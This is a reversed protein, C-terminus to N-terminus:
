SRPSVRSHRSVSRARSRPCKSLGSPLRSGDQYRGKLVEVLQEVLEPVLCQQISNGEGTSVVEGRRRRAVRARRRPPVLSEEPWEAGHQATGNLVSVVRAEMEVSDNSHQTKKLTGVPKVSVLGPQGQTLYATAEIWVCAQLPVTLFRFINHTGLRHSPRHREKKQHRQSCVSDLFIQKCAEEHQSCLGMSQCM